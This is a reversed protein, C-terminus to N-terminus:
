LERVAAPLHRSITQLHDILHHRVVLIVHRSGQIYGPLSFEHQFYKLDAGHSFKRTKGVGCVNLGSVPIYMDADRLADVM